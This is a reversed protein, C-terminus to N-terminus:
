IQGIKNLKVALTGKDMDVPLAALAGIRRDLIAFVRAFEADVEAPKGQFHAPDPTSWHAKVPHGPFIPCVEGAASDCVTIVIDLDVLNTFVEWGKSEFGLAPINHRQLTAISMPHIKGTPFSGASFARFKGKGREKLLAEAMISRCSNGTCLFLVNLPRM